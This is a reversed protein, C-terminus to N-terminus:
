EGRRGVVGAPPFVSARRCGFGIRALRCTIDRPSGRGLHL